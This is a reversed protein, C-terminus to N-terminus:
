KAVVLKVIAEVSKSLGAASATVAVQTGGALTPTQAAGLTVSAASRPPKDADGDGGGCAGLTSALAAGIVAARFPHRVISHKM